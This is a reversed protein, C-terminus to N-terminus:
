PESFVAPPIQDGTARNTRAPSLQLHDLRDEVMVQVRFGSDQVRFGQLSLVSGM